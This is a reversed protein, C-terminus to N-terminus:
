WDDSHRRTARNPRGSQLQMQAVAVALVDRVAAETERELAAQLPGMMEPRPRKTLEEAAALRVAIDPAHLELQAIVPRLARRIANNIRPTRLAAEDLEVTEGSLADRLSGDEAKIYVLGAEDVRLRRDGLAELAPLAAPDNLTGLATIAQRVDRRSKAGLGQLLSALDGGAASAGPPSPLGLLLILSLFLLSISLLPNRETETRQRLERDSKM